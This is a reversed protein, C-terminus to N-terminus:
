SYYTITVTLASQLVSKTGSSSNYLYCNVSMSSSYSTLKYLFNVGDPLGTCSISKIAKAGFISIGGASATEKSAITVGSSPLSNEETNETFTTIGDIGAIFEDPFAMSATGGTKTRIADAIGTLQTDTVSYNVSDGGRM